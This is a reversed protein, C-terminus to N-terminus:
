FFSSNIQFNHLATKAHCQTSKRIEAFFIYSVDILLM